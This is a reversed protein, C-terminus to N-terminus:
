YGIGTRGGVGPLRSSNLPPELALVRERVAALDRNCLALDRQDVASFIWLRMDMSPKQQDSLLISRHCARKGLEM